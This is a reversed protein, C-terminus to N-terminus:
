CEGTMALYAAGMLGARNGLMAKKLTVGRFSSMVRSHVRSETERIVYDQNM